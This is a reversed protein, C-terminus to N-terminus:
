PAPPTKKNFAAKEPADTDDGVGKDFFIVARRIEETRVVTATEHAGAAKAVDYWKATDLGQALLYRMANPSDNQAAYRAPVRGKKDTNVLSAGKKHLEALAFANDSRSAVMVLDIGGGTAATVSAGAKLLMDFMQQSEPKFGTEISWSMPSNGKHNYGELWAKGEILVGLMAPDYKTVARMVVTNGGADVAKTDAGGAILFRVADAHGGAAALMLPTEGQENAADINMSPTMLSKLMDINGSAAAKRFQEEFKVALSFAAANFADEMKTANDGRAQAPATAPARHNM